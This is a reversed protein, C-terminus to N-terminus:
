NEQTQPKLKPKPKIRVLLNFSVVNVKDKVKRKISGGADHLSNYM